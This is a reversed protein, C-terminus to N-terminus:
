INKDYRGGSLYLKVEKLLSRHMMAVISRLIDRIANAKKKVGSGSAKISYYLKKPLIVKAEQIPQIDPYQRQFVRHVALAYYITLLEEQSHQIKMGERLLMRIMGSLPRTAKRALAQIAISLQDDLFRVTVVVFGKTKRKNPKRKAATNRMNDAGLNSEPAAKARSSMRASMDYLIHQAEYRGPLPSNTVGHNLKGGGGREREWMDLIM